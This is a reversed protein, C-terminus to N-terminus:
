NYPFSPMPNLKFLNQTHKKDIIEKIKLDECVGTRIYKDLVKYTFGLNDEDTKGCLGDSPVKEVLTKPLGLYNGIAIIEQVTLNHFLSVDGEADGGVTAYGVWNESLNCTNILRGNLNQCVTRLENTRLRPALNQKAQETMKIGCSEQHKIVTEYTDKINIEYYKINLLSCVDYADDIDDQEGNPLIVGIVRDNGLAKVCIAAAITSDKGGSIGIVANCGLGNKDFWEKIWQILENTVKKVNFDKM